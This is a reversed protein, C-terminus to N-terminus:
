FEVTDMIFCLGNIVDVNQGASCRTVPGNRKEEPFRLIFHELSGSWLIQVFLTQSLFLLLLLIGM